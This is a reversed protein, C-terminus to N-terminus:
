PLKEPSLSSASDRRFNGKTVGVQPPGAPGSVGLGGSSLHSGAPLSHTPASVPGALGSSGSEPGGAAVVRPGVFTSPPSYTAAALPAVDSPEVDSEGLESRVRSRTYHYAM